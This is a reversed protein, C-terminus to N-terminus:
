DSNVRALPYRESVEVATWLQVSPVSKTSAGAGGRVAMVQPGLARSGAIGQARAM